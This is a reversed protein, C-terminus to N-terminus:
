ISIYVGHPPTYRVCVISPCFGAGTSLLKDWYKCAKICGQHHLIKDMLLIDCISMATRCIYGFRLARETGKTVQFCTQFTPEAHKESICHSYMHPNGLITPKGGLDDMKIPNEM